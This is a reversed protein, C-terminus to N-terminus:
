YLHEENIMKKQKMDKLLINVKRMLAANHNSTNKTINPNINEYTSTDSLRENIKDNYDKTNMIVTVNGKEAPVIIIKDYNKLSIFANSEDKTLYTRQPVSNLASSVKQKPTFKEDEGKGRIREIAGDTRAIFSFRDTETASCNLKLREGRAFQEADNLEISSLNKIWKEFFNGYRQSKLLSEFKSKLRVIESM